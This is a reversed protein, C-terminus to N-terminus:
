KARAMQNMMEFLAVSQPLVQPVDMRDPKLVYNLRQYAQWFNRPPEEGADSCCGSILVRECVENIQASNLPYPEPSHFTKHSSDHRLRKEVLMGIIQYFDGQGFGTGEMQERAETWAKMKSNYDQAWAIVRGYIDGLAMKEEGNRGLCSYNAVMDPRGLISQNHCVKVMPGIAVQIGKQHYAVALNTVEDATEGDLIHINAYVRRLVHSELCREGMQEEIAPLVTVGPRKSDRNDAAFIEDVKPTLGQKEFIGLLEQLLVFHYVGGVPKGDVHNEHYTRELEDLTLTQVKNEKFNLQKTEM